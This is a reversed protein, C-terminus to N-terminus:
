PITVKKLPVVLEIPRQTTGNPGPVPKLVVTDNKKDVCTVVYPKEDFIVNPQEQLRRVAKQWRVSRVKLYVRKCIFITLRMMGFIATYVALVVLANSACRATAEDGPVTAGAYAAQSVIVLVASIQAKLSM